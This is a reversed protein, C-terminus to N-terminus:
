TKVSLYVNEHAGLGRHTRKVRRSTAPRTKKSFPSKFALPPRLEKVQMSNIMNKNFFVKVVHRFLSTFFVRLLYTGMWCNCHTKTDNFIDNVFICSLLGTKTCSDNMASTLVNYAQLQKLTGANGVTIPIAMIEVIGDM